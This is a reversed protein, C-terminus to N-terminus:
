TMIISFTCQAVKLFHNMFRSHPIASTFSLIIYFYLIM